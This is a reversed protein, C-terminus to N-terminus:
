ESSSPKPYKSKISGITQKWADIGNHYIDDLQDEISPYESARQYKYGNAALDSATAAASEDLAQEEEATLPLTVGNVLKYRTM